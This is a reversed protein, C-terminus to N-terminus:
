RFLSGWALTDCTINASSSRVGPSAMGEGGRELTCLYEFGESSDHFGAGQVEIPSAGSAPASSPLGSVVAGFRVTRGLYSSSINGSPPPTWRMAAAGGGEDVVDVGVDGGAGNWRPVPCLGHTRNVVVIDSEEGNWAAGIATFRCTYNGRGLFAFGVVTLMRDGGGTAPFLQDSGLLATWSEVVPLPFGRRQQVEGGDVSSATANPGGSIDVLSLVADPAGGRHSWEPFRCLVQGEPPLAYLLPLSSLARTPGSDILLNPADRSQARCV